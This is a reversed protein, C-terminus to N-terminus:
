RKLLQLLSIRTLGAVVVLLLLLSSLTQSTQRKNKYVEVGNQNRASVVGRVLLVRTFHEATKMVVAQGDVRELRNEPM